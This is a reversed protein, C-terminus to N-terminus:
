SVPKDVVVVPKATEAPPPIPAAVQTRVFMAIIASLATMLATQRDPPLSFHWAAALMILAKILGLILAPTGDKTVRWVITALVAAVVGNLAGEQDTTLKFLFTGAASFLAAFFAAWLAPERGWLKM